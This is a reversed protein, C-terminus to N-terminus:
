GGSGSQGGGGTGGSNDNGGGGINEPKPILTYKGKSVSESYPPTTSNYIAYGFVESGKEIPAVKVDYPQLYRNEKEIHSLVDDLSKSGLKEVGVTYIEPKLGNEVDLM